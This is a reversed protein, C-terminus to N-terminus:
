GTTSAANFPRNSTISPKSFASRLRNGNILLKNSFLSIASSSPESRSCGSRYSENSVVCPRVFSSNVALRNNRTCGSKMTTARENGTGRNGPVVRSGGNRLRKWARAMAGGGAECRFAVRM